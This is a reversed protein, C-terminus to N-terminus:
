QLLFSTKQEMRYEACGQRRHFAFIQVTHIRLVTWQWSTETGGFYWLIWDTAKFYVALLESIKDVWHEVSSSIRTVPEEPLTHM